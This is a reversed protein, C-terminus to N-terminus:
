KYTQVYEYLDSNELPPSFYYGQILDCTINSLYNIQNSSEVGLAIVDINLLNSLSTLTQIIAEDKGDLQIGDIFHKAIKLQSIMSNNLHQIGSFNANFNDVCIQFGKSVLFKLHEILLPSQDLIVDESVEFTILSPNVDYLALTKDIYDKLEHSSLFSSSINISLSLRFNCQQDWLHVQQFVEQLIWKELSVILGSEKAVMLYDHPLVVVQNPHQWRILAEASHVQNTKIDIIPQYFVRFQNEKIATKLEDILHEKMMISETMSQNFYTYANKGTSKSFYMAISAYQLLANIDRSHDPYLSIGFSSEIFIPKTNIYFPSRFIGMIRNVIKDTSKKDNGSLIISFEDDNLMCIVDDSRLSMKIKNVILLLLNKYEEQSTDKTIHEYNDISLNLCSLQVNDSEIGLKSIYDKCYSLTPMDNLHKFRLNNNM